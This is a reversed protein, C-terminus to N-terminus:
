ATRREITILRYVLLGGLDPPRKQTAAFNDGLESSSGFSLLCYVFFTRSLMM